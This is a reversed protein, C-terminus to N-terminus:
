RAWQDVPRDKIEVLSKEADGVEKIWRGPQDGLGIALVMPQPSLMPGVVQPLLQELSRVQHHAPDVAKIQAIRDRKGLSEAFPM